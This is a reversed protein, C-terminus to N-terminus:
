PHTAIPFTGRLNETIRETLEQELNYLRIMRTFNGTPFNPILTKLQKQDELIKEFDEAEVPQMLMHGEDGFPVFSPEFRALEEFSGDYNIFRVIGDGLMIMYTVVEGLENIFPTLSPLSGGSASWIIMSGLQVFENGSSIIEYLVYGGGTFEIASFQMAIILPKYNGDITFLQFDAARVPTARDPNFAGYLSKIFPVDYIVEGYGDTFYGYQWLWNGYDDLFAGPWNVKIVPEDSDPGFFISIFQNLFDEAVSSPCSVFNPLILQTPPEACLDDAETTDRVVEGYEYTKDNALEIDIEKIATCSSLIIAFLILLTSMIKSKM